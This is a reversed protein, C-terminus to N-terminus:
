KDPPQGKRCFKATAPYRMAIIDECTRLCVVLEAITERQQQVKAALEAAKRMIEADTERSIRATEAAHHRATQDILAQVEPTM